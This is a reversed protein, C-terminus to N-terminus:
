DLIIPGQNEAFPIENAPINQSERNRFAQNEEDSMFGTFYSRQARGVFVGYYHIPRDTVMSVIFQYFTRAYFLISKSTPDLNADILHKPFRIENTNNKFLSRAVGASFAFDKLKFVNEHSYITEIREEFCYMVRAKLPVRYEIIKAV